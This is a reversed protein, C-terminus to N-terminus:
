AFDSRANSIGMLPYHPKHVVSDIIMEAAGVLQVLPPIELIHAQQQRDQSFGLFSSAYYDNGCIM